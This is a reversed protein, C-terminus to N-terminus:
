GYILQGDHDVPIFKQQERLFHLVEPIDWSNHRVEVVLPYMRFETILRFLWSRNELNHHFSQPFQMLLAGLKGAEQLVDLGIQVRQVDDGTYSRRARGFKQWLKATFRFHVNHAVRQVWRKSAESSQPHYYTSNIEILNFYQAVYALDDFGRPPKDPYFYGKWDPYSWGAPGVFLQSNALPATM